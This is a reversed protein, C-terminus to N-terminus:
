PCRPRNLNKSDSFGASYPTIANLDFSVEPLPAQTMKRGVQGAQPDFLAHAITGLVLLLPVLKTYLYPPIAAHPTSM